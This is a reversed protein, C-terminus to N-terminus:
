YAMREECLNLYKYTMMCWFVVAIAQTMNQLCTTYLPFLQEHIAYAHCLLNFVNDFGSFGFTNAIKGHMDAIAEAMELAVDLKESATLNNLPDVDHEDFLGEEPEYGGFPVVVDSLDQVAAETVVTGACHSYLSVIRPSKQLLNM